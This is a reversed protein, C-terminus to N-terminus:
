ARHLFICKRSSLKFFDAWNLFSLTGQFEFFDIIKFLRDKCAHHPPDKSSSKVLNQGCSRGNSNNWIKSQIQPECKQRFFFHESEGSFLVLRGSSRLLTGFRTESLKKSKNLFQTGLGAINWPVKGDPSRSINHLIKKGPFSNKHVLRATGASVRSNKSASGVICIIHCISSGM